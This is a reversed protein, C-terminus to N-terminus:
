AAANQYYKVAGGVDICRGGTRMFALFGVQGKRSYASDTFRFFLMQSVDRVIYKSFDGFLVSKANAAMTPIHQNTAYPKGLITNPESAEMGPLWLPRGQTDKLKKVVKITSDNMMFGCQASRRYAPDVSHELDILDELTIISTQGSGGVKGATTDALIGHPMSTGSGNIFADESTRGIRMGIQENIYSELDFQTDQLLQFPVAIVKSSVMHTDINRVGFTTDEDGAETNEALWEGQEATANATPWPITSGTATPVVTALERMGGYAKLAQSIGPAIEDATLYGGESGQGTSMANKPSNIRAQVASRQDENLASMGGRLWSAYAAKEQHIQHEAEDASIGNKDARDQITQKSKAQLDLVKQQRDLDGDLADIKNVLDDYKKQKDDGWAEDKPHDTVLQNLTVALEKRQERKQQISM